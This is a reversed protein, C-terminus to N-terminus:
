SRVDGHRIQIMVNGRLGLRRPYGFRELNGCETAELGHERALVDLSAGTHAPPLPPRLFSRDGDPALVDGAMVGRPDLRRSVMAMLEHMKPEDFYYLIQSAWIFDFQADGLERDGFSETVLLRPRREDLGHRRIEEWGAEIASSRCDVGVYRGADLYAIFKVGGQLAGCGLDLLRHSPRLGFARTAALQYAQLEKWYGLPGVMSELRHRRRLGPVLARLGYLRRRTSKLFRVLHM